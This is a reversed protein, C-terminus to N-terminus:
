YRYILTILLFYGYEGLYYGYIMNHKYLCYLIHRDDDVVLRNINNGYSIERIFSPILLQLLYGTRNVVQGHSSYGM